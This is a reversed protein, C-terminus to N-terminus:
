ERYIMQARAQPNLLEPTLDLFVRAPWGSDLFAATTMKFRAIRFVHTPESSNGTRRATDTLRTLDTILEPEPETKFNRRTKGPM